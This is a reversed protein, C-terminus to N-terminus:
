KTEEPRPESASSKLVIGSFGTKEVLPSNKPIYSLYTDFQRPLSPPPGWVHTIIKAPDAYADGSKNLSSYAIKHKLLASVQEPEVPESADFDYIYCGILTIVDPAYFRTMVLYLRKNNAQKSYLNYAMKWDPNEPDNAAAVSKEMVKELEPDDSELALKWGITEAHTKSKEFSLRVPLCAEGFADVVPSIALASNASAGIFLASVLYPALQRV